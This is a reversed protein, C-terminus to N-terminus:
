NLPASAIINISLPPGQLKRKKKKKAIENTGHKKKRTELKLGGSGGIEFLCIFFFFM